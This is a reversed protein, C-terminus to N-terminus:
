PEQNRPLCQLANIEKKVKTVASPLTDFRHKARSNLARLVGTRDPPCYFLMASPSNVASKKRDGGEGGRQGQRSKRRAVQDGGASGSSRTYETNDGKEGLSCSTQLELSYRGAKMNRRCGVGFAWHTGELRVSTDHGPAKYTGNM